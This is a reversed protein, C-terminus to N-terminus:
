RQAREAAFSAPRRAGEETVTKRTGEGDVTLDFAILADM